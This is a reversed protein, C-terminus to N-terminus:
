RRSRLLSPNMATLRVIHQIQAADLRVAPRTRKSARWERRIVAIHKSVTFQSLGTAYQVEKHTAGLHESLYTRILEINRQRTTANHPNM